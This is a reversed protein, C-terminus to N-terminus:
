QALGAGSREPISAVRQHRLEKDSPRTRQTSCPDDGLGWGDAGGLVTHHSLGKHAAITRRPWRM